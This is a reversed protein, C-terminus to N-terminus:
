DLRFFDEWSVINESWANLINHLFSSATQFYFAPFQLCQITFRLKIDKKGGLLLEM